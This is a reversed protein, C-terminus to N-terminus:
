CSRVVIPPSVHLWSAGTNARSCRQLRATMGTPCRALTVRQALVATRQSVALTAQSCSVRPLRTARCLPDHMRHQCLVRQTVHRDHEGDRLLAAGDRNDGIVAMFPRVDTSHVHSILIARLLIFIGGFLTCIHACVVHHVQMSASSGLHRPGSVSLSLGLAFVSMPQLRGNCQARAREEDFEAVQIRITRDRTLSHHITARLSRSTNLTSSTYTHARARIYTYIYTHIARM